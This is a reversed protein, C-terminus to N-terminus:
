AWTVNGWIAHVSALGTAAMGRMIMPRATALTTRGTVARSAGCRSPANPRSELAGWDLLAVDGM